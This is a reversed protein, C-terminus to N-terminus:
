ALCFCFLLNLCTFFQGAQINVVRSRVSNNTLSKKKKKVVTHSGMDYLPHRSHLLVFVSMEWVAFSLMLSSLVSVPLYLCTCLSLMFSLCCGYFLGLRINRRMEKIPKIVLRFKLSKLKIIDGKLHKGYTELLPGAHLFAFIHLCM